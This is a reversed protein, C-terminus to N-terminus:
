ANDKLRTEIDTIEPFVLKTYDLWTKGGVIDTGVDHSADLYDKWDKKLDQFAEDPILCYKFKNERAADLKGAGSKPQIGGVIGVIGNLDIKGTMCVDSNFPVNLWRSLLTFLMAQGASPGSVAVNEAGEGLSVVHLDIDYDMISPNYKRIFDRAMWACEKAGTGLNGFTNVVGRGKRESKFIECEVTLFIGYTETSDTALGYGKGVLSTSSRHMESFRRMDRMADTEAKKIFAATLHEMTIPNSAAVKQYIDILNMEPVFGEADPKLERKHMREFEEAFIGKLTKIKKEDMKTVDDESMADFMQKCAISEMQAMRAAEKIVDASVRPSFSKALFLRLIQDATVSSDSSFDKWQTKVVDLKEDTTKPLTFEFQKDLRQLLASDIVDARNTAGIFVVRGKPNFGELQTLLTTLMSEAVSGNGGITSGRARGISDIEDMFIISPAHSRARGFVQRMSKESEGVLGSMLSAAQVVYVPCKNEGAIAKTLLTKGTGAPGFFLYGRPPVWKDGGLSPNLSLTVEKIIEDKVGRLGGVDTYREKPPVTQESEQAAQTLMQEKYARVKNAVKKFSDYTIPLPKLDVAGQLKNLFRERVPQESEAIVEDFARTLDHPVMRAEGLGRLEQELVYLVKEADLDLKLKVLKRKVIEIMADHNLGPSDLDILYTRRRVDERISEVTNSGMVVITRVPTSMITDLATLIASEAQQYEKSASDGQMNSGKQVIQQAEDIFLFTPKKQADSFAGSIAGSYMGMFPSNVAAGELPKLDLIFGEELARNFAERMVSKILFSKGSGPEGKVLFVKPPAISQQIADPHKLIHYYISNLFISVEKERGVLDSIAPLSPYYGMEMVTKAREKIFKVRQEKPMNVFQAQQFDKSFLKWMPKYFSRIYKNSFWVHDGYLKRADLDIDMLEDVTRDPTDLAKKEEDAKKKEEPTKRFHGM